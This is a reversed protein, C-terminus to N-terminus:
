QARAGASRGKGAASASVREAAGTGDHDQLGEDGVLTGLDLESLREQLSGLLERGRASSAFRGAGLVGAGVLVARVGRFRRRKSRGTRKAEELGAELAALVVRSTDIAM